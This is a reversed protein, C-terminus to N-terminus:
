DQIITHEGGMDAMNPSWFLYKYQRFTCIRHEFTSLFNYTKKEREPWFFESVWSVSSSSDRRCSTSCWNLDHVLLSSMALLPSSNCINVWTWRLGIAENTVAGTGASKVLYIIKDTQPNYQFMCELYTNQIKTTVTKRQIYCGTSCAKILITM